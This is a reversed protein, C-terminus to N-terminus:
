RAHVLRRYNRRAKMYEGLTPVGYFRSPLGTFMEPVFPEEEGRILRALRGAAAEAAHIDIDEFAVGTFDLPAVAVPNGTDVGEDVEHITYGALAPNDEYYAWINGHGRYRPNIGPHINLVPCPLARLFGPALVGCFGIVILDPGFDAVLSAVAPDRSLSATHVSPEYLRRIAKESGTVGRAFGRLYYAYCGLLSVPGKNRLRRRSFSLGRGLSLLKEEAFCLGCETLSAALANAMARAPAEDGCMVLVRPREKEVLRQFIRRM